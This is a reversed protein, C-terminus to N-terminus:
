QKGRIEWRWVEGADVDQSIGVFRMGLKRLVSTSANENPLTHACVIQVRVDRFARQILETAALTAVGQGRFMPATGYAIEVVGEASPPGTYGCVGAIVPPKGVLVLHTWWGLLEPNALLKDRSMRMAVAFDDWDTAITAKLHEELKEPSEVAMELCPLDCAVLSIEDPRFM